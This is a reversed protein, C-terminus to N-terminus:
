REMMEKGTRDEYMIEIKDKQDELLELQELSAQKDCARALNTERTIISIEKKIANHCKYLYLPLNADRDELMREINWNRYDVSVDASIRGIYSVVRCDDMAIKGGNKLEFLGGDSSGGVPVWDMRNILYDERQEKSILM